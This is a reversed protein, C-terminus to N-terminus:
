IDLKGTLWGPKPRKVTYQSPEILWAPVATKDAGTDILLRCPKGNITGVRLFDSFEDTESGSTIRGLKVKAETCDRRIHGPMRYKYCTIPKSPLPAGQDVPM